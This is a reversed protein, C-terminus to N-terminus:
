GRKRTLDIMIKMYPEQSYESSDLSDINTTGDDLRVDEKKDDWVADTYAQITERCNSLIFFRHQAFMTLGFRIRDIIEGKRANNIAIPIKANVVAKRLGRILVQEASDCYAALVKYETMCERCFDVFM